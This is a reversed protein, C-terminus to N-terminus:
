KNQQNNQGGHNQRKQNPQAQPTTRKITKSSTTTTDHLHQPSEHSHATSLLQRLPTHLHNDDPSHQHPPTFSPYTQQYHEYLLRSREREAMWYNHSQARQSEPSPSNHDRNTTQDSPFAIRRRFLFSAEKNVHIAFRYPSGPQTPQDTPTHQNSNPQQNSSRNQNDPTPTVSPM